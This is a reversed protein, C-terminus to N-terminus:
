PSAAQLFVKGTTICPDRFAQVLATKSKQDTQSDFFMNPKTIKDPTNWEQRTPIWVKFPKVLWYKKQIKQLFNLKTHGLGTDRWEGQCKLRYATLRAAGIAALDM